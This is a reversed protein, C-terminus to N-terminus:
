PGPTPSSRAAPSPQPGIVDVSADTKLPPLGDREVTFIILWPGGMVFHVPFTYQGPSGAVPEALGSPEVNAHAPMLPSVTVRAGEVPQGAGDRLTLLLTATGSIPPSPETALRVEVYDGPTARLASEALELRFAAKLDDAQTRQVIATVLYIGDLTLVPQTVGWSGGAPTLDGSPEATYSTTGADIDQPTVRLLVRTVDTLPPSSEAQRTVDLTFEDGELSPRVNLSLDYGAVSVSASAPGPTPIPTPAEVVTGATPTAGPLPGAGAVAPASPPPILTLGGACVIAVIALAVELRVNRRLSEGPGPNSAAHGPNDPAPNPKRQLLPTLRLLNVAGLGVLLVFAAIKILLVQGYSSSLVVGLDTSHLLLNYTGTLALAVVSVVALRSFRPVSRSLFERRADGTIGVSRLSPFLVLAMFALGGVWASATTLHVWDAIVPVPLGLVQAADGTVAAAHSSLSQGLLLLSGASIALDWSSLGERAGSGKRRWLFLMIGLLALGAAVKLLWAFGYRTTTVLTWGAGGTLSDWVPRDSISGLQGLLDLFLALLVLAAAATGVIGFRRRTQADLAPGTAANESATPGFVMVMFLAGGVLLAAGGLLLARVAWRLPGPNEVTQAASGVTEDPTIPASEEPTAPGTGKVRFAFSGASPHGDVSSVVKWIVTYTGSPLPEPLAVELAVDQGAQALPGTPMEKRTRDYVVISSFDISVAESWVIRIADPSVDLLTGAQPSTSVLKAHASADLPVALWAALLILAALGARAIRVAAASM